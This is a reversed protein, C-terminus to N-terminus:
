STKLPFEHRHTFPDNGYQTLTFTNGSIEMVGWAHAPTGAGVPETASQVTLYPIGDHWDVHNWHLHGNVAAAVKGSERLVKRVEVRNEVLCDGPLGEFWPNGTLDQDAFSQHSFVFAPKGTKALDEQLWSLQDAPLIGGPTKPDAVFPHLLLFHYAGEDFSYSLSDVGLINRIQTASLHIVDHNGVLHHVPKKSEGLIAVGRRFNERDTEPDADLILDGFQLVFDIDGAHAVVDVFEHLYPEAFVTQKRRAGLPYETPGLHLDSIFAIKVM